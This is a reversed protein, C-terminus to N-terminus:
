KPRSMSFVESSAKSTSRRRRSDVQGGAGSEGQLVSAIQARAARQAPLYSGLAAIALGALALAVFALPHFVDYTSEPITLSAATQGLYGLVIRQCALGLPVGILGALLGLPVVASVVMAIVETPTLGLVKLVAIERTRQQTELLVTNFVGGLSIVVLVIGMSAVVSLFLLFEEDSDSDDVTYAAVRHGTAAELASSFASPTVGGAPLVEWRSPRATPDVRVLDTWDGRLVLHAPSEDATDFIEGVLTVEVSRPGVSLEIRDGIDLGTMEFVHTPAVVEGAGAFWRGKILEYGIWSADGDYAVFPM